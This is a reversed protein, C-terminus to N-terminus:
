LIGGQAFPGDETEELFYGPRILFKKAPILRGDPFQASLRIENKEPVLLAQQGQFDLVPQNILNLLGIRVM